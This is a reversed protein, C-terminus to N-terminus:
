AKDQPIARGHWRDLVRPYAGDWFERDEKPCKEMRLRVAVDDAEALKAELEKIQARAERLSQRFKARGDVASLYVSNPVVGRDIITRAMGVPVFDCDGAPPETICTKHDGQKMGCNACKWKYDEREACEIMFTEDDFEMGRAEEPERTMPIFTPKYGVGFPWMVRGPHEAEWRDCVTRAAADLIRQDDNTLKVSQPFFIEVMRIKM